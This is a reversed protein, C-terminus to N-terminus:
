EVLIDFMLSESQEKPIATHENFQVTTKIEM